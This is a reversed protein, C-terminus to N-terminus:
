RACGLPPQPIQHDRYHDFEPGLRREGTLPKLLNRALIQAIPWIENSCLTDGASPSGAHGCSLRLILGGDFRGFLYALHTVAVAIM